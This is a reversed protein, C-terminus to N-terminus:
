QSAADLAAKEKAAADESDAVAQRAADKYANAAEVIAPKAAAAGAAQPEPRREEEPAEPPSCAGLSAILLTAAVICATRPM